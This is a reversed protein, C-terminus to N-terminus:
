AQGKRQRLPYPALDDHRVRHLHVAAKVDPRRLRASFLPSPDRVVEQVKHVGILSKGSGVISSLRSCYDGIDPSASVQRDYNPPRTEIDSREKTAQEILRSLLWGDPLRQTPLRHFNADRGKMPPKLSEIRFRGSRDVRVIQEPDHPSKFYKRSAAAGDGSEPCLRAAIM